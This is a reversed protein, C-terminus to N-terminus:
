SNKRSHNKSHANSADLKRLNTKASTLNPDLKLAKLYMQQAKDRKNWRHYLVGLNSYYLANLENLKIAQLFHSEAEPFRNLKGLANGMAFYIAPARPVHSLAITGLEVAELARGHSDLLALANGWAATHTPRLRVAEKWASLAKAHQGIDLYLNGLNYQADAYKTRHILAKKYAHEAEVVQGKSSLVIGLNMWAAAFNPRVNVAKRLLSEAEDLQGSDRLLNALNNMAQEYNPYVELAQSYSKLAEERKGQDAAVKAINYHVKANLPCVHLASKFLREENLWEYNRHISRLIFTAILLVYLSTFYLRVNDYRNKLKQLGLAVLFCYGASPLLLTREAIVFGVKLFLNSSPLFPIIMVSIGMVSVNIKENNICDRFLKYAVIVVIIWFIIVLFGRYDMFSNILPICGMSWDFCLWQPWILLVINILYLYNYSFIRTFLRDAFAAPNDTHNFIPGEFNMIKMRFFMIIIGIIGLLIFRTFFRQTLAESWSNSPKKRLYLEYVLCVGLVTIATEKCLVAISTFLLVVFFWIFNGNLNKYLIILSIFLLGGLIDARGVLAAAAECHVPHTAFLLAGTFAPDDLPALSKRHKRRKLLCEFFPLIMISLIGHLVVNATHFQFADLRSNSFFMNLRYSLVTLPRYSKHSANHSINMGWFDNFFVNKIPTSPLIDKNKVIAEADDFAFGGWLSVFHSAWACSAIAIFKKSNVNSEMM